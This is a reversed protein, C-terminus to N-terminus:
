ISDCLMCTGSGNEFAAPLYGAANVDTTKIISSSNKKLLAYRYYGQEYYITQCM